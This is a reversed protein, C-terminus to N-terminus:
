LREFALGHARGSPPLRHLRQLPLERRDSRRVHGPEPRETERWGVQGAAAAVRLQSRDRQPLVQGGPGGVIQTVESLDRLRQPPLVPVGNTGPARIKGHHLSRGRGWVLSFAMGLYTMSRSIGLTPFVEWPSRCAM